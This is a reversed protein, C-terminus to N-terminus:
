HTSNPHWLFGGRYSTLADLEITGSAGSLDTDAGRGVLNAYVERLEKARSRYIDSQTRRDVVDNPLGTNGTNQVAKIAAQNLIFSAALTIIARQDAVRISTATADAESLVHPAAYALRMLQGIAATNALLELSEGTPTPIVRWTNRDLPETGQSAANWPFWVDTLYSGGDVWANIGSTPMIAGAGSLVFRFGATGLTLDLIRLNPRDNKFAVLANAIAEDYDAPDNLLLQVGVGSTSASDQAIRRAAARLNAGTISM